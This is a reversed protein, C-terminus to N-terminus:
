PESKLKCFSHHVIRRATPAVLTFPREPWITLTLALTTPSILFTLDHGFNLWPPTLGCRRRMTIYVSKALKM